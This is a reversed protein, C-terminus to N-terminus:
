YTSGSAHLAAKERSLVIIAEAASSFCLPKVFRLNYCLPFTKAHVRGQIEDQHCKLAAVERELKAIHVKTADDPRPFREWIFTSKV